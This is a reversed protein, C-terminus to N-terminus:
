IATSTGNDNNVVINNNTNKDNININNENNNKFEVLKMVHQIVDNYPNEKIDDKIIGMEKLTLLVKTFEAQCRMADGTSKFKPTTNNLYELVLKLSFITTDYLKSIDFAEKRGQKELEKDLQKKREVQKKLLTKEIEKYINPISCKKIFYQYSIKEVKCFDNIRKDPNQVLYIVAKTELEQKNWRQPYAQKSCVKKVKNTKM